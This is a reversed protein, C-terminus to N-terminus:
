HYRIGNSTVDCPLCIVKVGNEVAEHFAKTYEPDIDSNPYVQDIGNIGICYLLYAEYGKQVAGQLERLHKAGRTTPADPFYGKGNIELTCGKVEILIKRDELELYFDVRSNGFTYEPRIDAGFFPSSESNLWEGVVINPVQSDINIIGMGKKEVAILDWKTKRNPNSATELYVKVGPLLLEKCRGTNKVHVTEIQGNIEVHSIFRNPRDIFTGEVVNQYQM